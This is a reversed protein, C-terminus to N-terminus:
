PSRADGGREALALARRLDAELESLASSRAYALLRDTPVCRHVPEGDERPLRVCWIRRGDPLRYLTAWPRVHLTVPVRVRALPTARSPLPCPPIPEPVPQRRAVPPRVSQM